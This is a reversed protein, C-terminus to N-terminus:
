RAVEVGRSVLARVTAEGSSTLRTRALGLARLDPLAALPTPDSIETASLDLTSLSRRRAPRRPAPM